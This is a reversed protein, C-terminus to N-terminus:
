RDRLRYLVGGHSRVMELDQSYRSLSESAGLVIYGGPRMQRIMRDLIKQRVETAFYILVNRCFIIDFTGLGSYTDLLNHVRFQTRRQIASSVCWSDGDRKFFRDRREPSLGRNVTSANYCGENCQSIMAPSIDTGVIEAEMRLGRARQEELAISLSYAEQGSSCAASWIRLQQVGRRQYEPLLVEQLVTFPYTDRFWQTENTTMAEIVLGRLRQESSRQVRQVLEGLDRIGERDMLGNLRSAVLYQKNDGLLIGCSQELFSRFAQYDDPAITRSSVSPKGAAQETM